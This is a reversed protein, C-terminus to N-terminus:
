GKPTPDVKPAPVNFPDDHDPRPAVDPKTTPKTVPEEVEPYLPNRPVINQFDYYVGSTPLESIHVIISEM